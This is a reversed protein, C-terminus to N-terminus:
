GRCAGGQACMGGTAMLIEDVPLWFLQIGIGVRQTPLPKNLSGSPAGQLLSITHAQKVTGLHMARWLRQHIKDIPEVGHGLEGKHHGIPLHYVRADYLVLPHVTAIMLNTRYTTSEPKHTNGIHMFILPQQNLGQRNGTKVMDHCAISVHLFYLLVVLKGCPVKGM